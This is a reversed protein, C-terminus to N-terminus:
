ASGVGLVVVVLVLVMVLVLVLVVLPGMVVVHVAGVAIIGLLIWAHRGRPWIAVSQVLIWGVDVVRSVKGVRMSRM